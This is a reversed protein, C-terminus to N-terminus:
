YALGYNESFHIIAFNNFFLCSFFLLLLTVKMSEVLGFLTYYLTTVLYQSICLDKERKIRYSYVFLM